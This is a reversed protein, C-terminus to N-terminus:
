NAVNNWVNFCSLGINQTTAHKLHVLLPVILTWKQVIKLTILVKVIFMDVLFWNKALIIEQAFGDKPLVVLFMVGQNEQVWHVKFFCLFCKFLYKGLKKKWSYMKNLELSNSIEISYFINHIKIKRIMAYIFFNLFMVITGKSSNKKIM